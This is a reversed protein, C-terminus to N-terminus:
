SYRLFPTACRNINQWGSAPHRCMSIVSCCVLRSKASCIFHSTSSAKGQASLIRARSSLKDVCERPANYSRNSAGSALPFKFFSSNWKQASVHWNTSYPPFQVLRTLGVISTMCFQRYLFVWVLLLLRQLFACHPLLLFRISFSSQQHAASTSGANDMLAFWYNFNVSCILWKCLRVQSNIFIYDVLEKIELLSIKWSSIRMNTDFQCHVLM